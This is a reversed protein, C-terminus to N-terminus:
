VPCTWHHRMMELSHLTLGSCYNPKAKYYQVSNDHARQYTYEHAFFYSVWQWVRSHLPEHIVVSSTLRQFDEELTFATTAQSANLQIQEWATHRNQKSLMIEANLNNKIWNDFQKDRTDM